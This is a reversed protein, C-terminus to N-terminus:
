DVVFFVHRHFPFIFIFLVKLSKLMASKYVSETDHINSARAPTTKIHSAPLKLIPFRKRAPRPQLTKRDNGKTQLKYMEWERGLEEKSTLSTQAALRSTIIALHIKFMLNKRHQKWLRYSEPIGAVRERERQQEIRRKQATENRIRINEAAIHQQERDKIAQPCQYAGTLHDM